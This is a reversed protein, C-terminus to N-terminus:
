QMLTLHPRRRSFLAAPVAAGGEHAAAKQGRDLELLGQMREQLEAPSLGSEILQRFQHALMQNSEASIM